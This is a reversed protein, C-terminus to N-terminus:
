KSSASQECLADIMRHMMWVFYLMPKFADNRGGMERLNPWGEVKGVAQWALPDIFVGGIMYEDKRDPYTLVEYAENKWGGEIAKEIFEKRGFGLIKQLVEEIILM